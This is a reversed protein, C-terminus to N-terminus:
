ELTDTESVLEQQPDISKLYRRATYESVEAEKVFLEPITPHNRLRDVHPFRHGDMLATLM